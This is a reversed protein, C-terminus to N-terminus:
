TIGKKQPSKNDDEIHLEDLSENDAIPKEEEGDAMVILKAQSINQIVNDDSPFIDFKVNWSSKNKGHSVVTGFFQVQKSCGQTDDRM